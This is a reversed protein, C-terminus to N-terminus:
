ARKKGIYIYTGYHNEPGRGAERPLIKYLLPEFTNKLADDLHTHHLRIPHGIDETMGHPALAIALKELDEENSLEQGFVLYGGPATIRCMEALCAIADRVHDLVNIVIVLDFSNTDFVAAEIPHNDLRIIGGRHAEALWRGRFTVYHEALPDSCWIEDM